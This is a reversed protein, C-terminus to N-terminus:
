TFYYQRSEGLPWLHKALKSFLRVNVFHNRSDGPINDILLFILHYHFQLVSVTTSPLNSEVDGQSFEYSSCFQGQLISEHDVWASLLTFRIVSPLPVESGFNHIKDFWYFVPSTDNLSNRKMILLRNKTDDLRFAHPYLQCRMAYRMKAM